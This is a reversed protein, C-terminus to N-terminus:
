LITVIYQGPLNFGDIKRPEPESVTIELDNALAKIRKLYHELSGATNPESIDFEFISGALADWELAAVIARDTEHLTVEDGDIVQGGTGYTLKVNKM